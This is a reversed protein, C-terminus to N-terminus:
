AFSPEKDTGTTYGNCSKLKLLKPFPVDPIEAEEPLDPSLTLAGKCKPSTHRKLQTEMQKMSESWTFNLMMLNKNKKELAKVKSSLLKNQMELENSKKSLDRVLNELVTQKSSEEPHKSPSTKCQELDLKPIFPKKGQEKPKSNFSALHNAQATKQYLSRTRSKSRECNFLPAFNPAEKQDKPFIISNARNIISRIESFKDGKDRSLESAKQSKGQFGNFFRAESGKAATKYKINTESDTFSEAMQEAILLKCRLEDREKNAERMKRLLGVNERNLTIVLNKSVENMDSGDVMKELLDKNIMLSEELDKIHAIMKARDMEIFKFKANSRSRPDLAQESLLRSGPSEALFSKIM